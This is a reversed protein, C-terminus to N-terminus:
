YFFGGFLIKELFFKRKPRIYLNYNEINRMQMLSPTKKRINHTLSKLYYPSEHQYRNIKFFWRTLIM